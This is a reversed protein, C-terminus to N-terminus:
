EIPNVHTNTFVTGTTKSTSKTIKIVVPVNILDPLSNNITEMTTTDVGFKELETLLRKMNEPSTLTNYKWHHRNVYDGDTIVFEWEFKLNGAKSEGFSVNEITANYEGEPLETYEGDGTVEVEKASALLENLEDFM